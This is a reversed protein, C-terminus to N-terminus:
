IELLFKELKNKFSLNKQRSDTQVKLLEFLKEQIEDKKWFKLNNKTKNYVFAKLGSNELKEKSVINLNKLSWFIINYIDEASNNELLTHYFVWLNKKDKKQLFDSIQFINIDKSKTLSFNEFRFSNKKIKELDEKDIKEDENLVWASGSDSIKEINDLFWKKFEKKYFINSLFIINKVEFLGQSNLLEELKEFNLDFSDYHFFNAMEKKKKLTQIIKDVENKKRSYDNGTYFFLM